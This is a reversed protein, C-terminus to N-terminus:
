HALISLYRQSIFLNLARVYVFQLKFFFSLSLSHTLLHVLFYTNDTTDITHLAPSAASAAAAAAM